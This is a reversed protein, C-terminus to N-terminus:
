TIELISAFAELYNSTSATLSIKDGAMLNIPKDYFYSSGGPVPILYGLKYYATDASKYVEITISATATGNVNAINLTHVVASTSSPCTYLDTRSTSSLALGKNKFTNAM